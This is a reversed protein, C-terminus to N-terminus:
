VESEDIQSTTIALKRGARSTLQHLTNGALLLSCGAGTVADRCRMKDTEPFYAFDLPLVVVLKSDPFSTQASRIGHDVCELLLTRSNPLVPILVFPEEKQIQVISETDFENETEAGVIRIKDPCQYFTGYKHDVRRVPLGSTEGQKRGTLRILALEEMLVVRLHNIFHTYVLSEMLPEPRSKFIWSLPIGRRILSMIQNATWVDRFINFCVLEPPVDQAEIRNCTESTLGSLATYLQVMLANPLLSNHGSVTESIRTEILLRVDLPVGGEFLIDMTGGTQFAQSCLIIVMAKTPELENFAPHEGIFFARVELRRTHRNFRHTTIGLILDNVSYCSTFWDDKVPLRQEGRQNFPSRVVAELYVRHPDPVIFENMSAREIDTETGQHVVEGLSVDDQGGM